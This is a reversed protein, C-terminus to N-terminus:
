PYPIPINVDFRFGRTGRVKDISKKEANSVIGSFKRRAPTAGSRACLERLSSMTRPFLLGLGAFITEGSLPVGRSNFDVL